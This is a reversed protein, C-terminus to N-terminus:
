KVEQFQKGDPSVYAKNGNGDVHLTWGAPPASTTPTSTSKNDGRMADKVTKPASMAAGMEQDMVSFAEKLQGKSMASNIIERAHNKDAVTAVGRPNIARAYANVLSNLATNLGVINVDGTGKAVANEVANLTPFEGPNVKDAYTQAIPIMKRAETAATTINALQTGLTRQGATTGAFEAKNSAVTSAADAASVGGEM